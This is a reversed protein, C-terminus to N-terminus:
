AVPQQSPEARAQFVRAGDGHWELLQAKREETTGDILAFCKQGYPKTCAVDEYAPSWTGTNLYEVGQEEIHLAKHTHGHVVRRVRAIHASLPMAHLIARQQRALDSEVSRGYAVFMPFLIGLPVLLWWGSVPTVVNITSFFQFSVLLIGFLLLVRDLWLERLIQYPTFISPHAHLERLSWLMAQSAQARQAIAEVRAPLTLPDTMAPLLGERVAVAMTVVSSWLWTVLLLPQTRMVYRYFFVLYEFVSSKIFNSDVHPNFFGMGNIMYRSALNGFPLRVSVQKGKRILPNIPNQCLCYSDYQNGHEILTDGNSLYFWECFVVRAADAEPLALHRLLEEQVSPWHLEVDHNGIVFVLKHGALVFRRMAELWVPHDALIRGMKFRSKPEEAHLGRRRELWSATVGASAPPMAMVSDFDFIDGNLVLELPEKRTLLLHEVLRLFEGDVFHEVRKYAKWQPSSPHPPEADALHVDSLVITTVM